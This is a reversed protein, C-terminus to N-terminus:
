EEASSLRTIARRAAEIRSRLEPDANRLAVIVYEYAQIAERKRGLRERLRGVEYATYPDRYYSLHELWLSEFYRAAQEPQDLEVFLSALWYRIVNNWFAPYYNSVVDGRAKELRLAAEEPRGQRWEGYAEVADGAGGLVRGRATDGSAIARGAAGQLRQIVATHDDWRGRDAAYAGEFLWALTDAAAASLAKELLASTVAEEGPLEYYKHLMYVWLGRPDGSVRSFDVDMEGAAKLKGQLVLVHFLLIGNWVPADPRSEIRRLLDEVVPLARPHTMFSLTAIQLVPTDLTDLAATAQRRSVPDGFVLVFALRGARARADSGALRAYSQTLSWARASDGDAFADEVLHFLHIANSPELRVAREMLGEWNGMDEAMIQGGYHVYVEGLLDWAQPDDPYTQVAKQLLELALYPNSSEFAYRARVLIGDREPLRNVLAYARRYSMQTKQWDCLFDAGCSEALGFHALAFTSDAELAREYASVAELYAGSRYLAEGELYAKLALVSTTTIGALRLAPLRKAGGPLIAKLIEISLQDVLASISDPLGTVQAEGLSTRSELDYVDASLRIDSGVTLATGVVAYSAGTRRAIDLTASLDPDGDEPIAERWRALVTRSDIARLGGAGDLNTSLLDVMGDRWEQLDEDGVRFPVVAIGPAAAAQAEEPTLDPGTAYRMFFLGGLLLLAGALASGLVVWRSTTRAKRRKGVRSGATLIPVDTVRFLQWTGPVGKLEQVGAEEFAFDSGSEADRVTSSVLVESPRAVSMVRAAIHVGIGGVDGDTQEISGMHLGCRIELGVQRVADRMAVACLIAPAPEDFLALFGDGATAVERGGFRRLERRVATHHRGLLERWRRDGLEAARDTSGVIDTFLVTFLSREPKM